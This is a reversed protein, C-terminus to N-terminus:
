KIRYSSGIFFLRMNCFDRSIGTKFLRMYKGCESSTYKKPLQSNRLVPCEYWYKDNLFVEAYQGKGIRIFERSELCYHTATFPVKRNEIEMM